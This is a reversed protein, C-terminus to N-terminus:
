KKLMKLEQKQQATIRLSEVCKQITKNFTFDNLNCTKFVSLTKNYDKVFCVSLAWAVAMNVYYFNSNVNTLKQLVVDVYNDTLFYNLYSVIAFRKEFENVSNFYQELFNFVFEQNSAFFKLTSIVSDCESWDAIVPVFKELYKLKTQVDLKAYGIVFGQLLVEEYFQQPNCDLFLIPDEKCIQKAIIRLTPIKVGLMPHINKVISSSFVKFKDDVFNNLKERIVKIFNEM